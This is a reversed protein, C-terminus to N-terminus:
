GGRADGIVDGFRDWLTAATALAAGNGWSFITFTGIAEGGHGQNEMMFGFSEPGFFPFRAEYARALSAHDPAYLMSFSARLAAVGREAYERSGTARFMDLYLPAFLSQRADNWESDANMVGFGGHAPAPLWHPDWVAQHLSLEDLCRRAAALAGPWGLRLHALRMADACWAISLTNQKYVGNRPVRRGLQSEAGWPACSWYTEFDEWRADRIVSEVFKLGREVAARGSASLLGRADLDLLLAVTVASEASDALEPAVRGDPEVWGPFAGSPRQLRVLRDACRSAMALARAEATLAHWELLMRSTFAADVLHCADGSVSPPRRDSGTWRVRRWPDDEPGAAWLVAPFLGDASPAALAVETMARARSELDERKTRCAYRLLGNACRQTSFWAQNWISRPERWTREAPPVSPHQGVHVIFAPAGMAVGDLEFSQWLVDRWGEASFAWRVVHEMSTALPARQSGGKEHLPRGWRRWLFRTAMRFPDRLDAASTSSLLHLRARVRQGSAAVPRRRYFVHGEQAYDGAGFVLRRARHDYDLYLRVGRADRVDDLDVVFALAVREDAIVFAPARFVVDGAVQGDEPSLHPVFLHRPRRIPHEIALEVGDCWGNSPLEGTLEFAGSAFRVRGGKAQARLAGRALAIALRRRASM